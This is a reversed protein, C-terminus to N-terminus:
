LNGRDPANSKFSSMLEVRGTRKIYINVGKEGILDIADSPSPTGKNIRRSGIQRDSAFFRQRAKKELSFKGKGVDLKRWQNRKKRM